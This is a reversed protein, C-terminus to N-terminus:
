SVTCRIGVKNWRTEESSKKYYFNLNKVQDRQCSSYDEHCSPPLCWDPEENSRRPYRRSQFLCSCGMMEKWTAVLSVGLLSHPLRKIAPSHYLDKDNLLVSKISGGLSPASCRVAAPQLPLWSERDLRHQCKLM